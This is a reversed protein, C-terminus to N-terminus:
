RIAGKRWKLYDAYNEIDKLIDDPLEDVIKELDRLLKERYDDFVVITRVNSLPTRDDGCTLCTLRGKEFYMRHHNCVAM